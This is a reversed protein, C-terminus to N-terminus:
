ANLLFDRLTINKVGGFTKVPKLSILLKEADESLARLPRTIRRVTISGDPPLVQIFIKEGGREAVFNITMAGFKGVSVEFGRRLLEMCVANEMLIADSVQALANLIGNDLCYIKENSTLFNNAKIDFRPIKKFLGSDFIVGFYNRVKRLNNEDISKLYESVNTAGGVNRALFKILMRLLSADSLFNKEVLDFLIECTLGRLLKPCIIKDADLAAPMGGFHLYRELAASSYIKEVEAFPLPYMKLVDCNEPLLVSINEALSESSGTVYIEAPAGVFLANIAKEWEDVRDIEDIILFFKELEQTKGDVFEYLRQFNKLQPNEECDIFIIEEGQARLTEAFNKLLTSKGVGRVGSIVKVSFNEKLELLKDSYFNQEVTM